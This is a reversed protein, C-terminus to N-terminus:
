PCDIGLNAMIIKQEFDLCDAYLLVPYDVVFDTQNKEDSSIKEIFEARIEIIFSELKELLTKSPHSKIEEYKNIL